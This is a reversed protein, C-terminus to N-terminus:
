AASRGLLWGRVRHLQPMVGYIVVPVAVTARTGHSRDEVPAPSRRPSACGALLVAALGIVIWKLGQERKMQM